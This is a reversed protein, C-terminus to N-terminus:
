VGSKRDGAVGHRIPDDVLQAPRRMLEKGQGEAPLELQVVRDRARVVAVMRGTALHQGVGIVRRGRGIQLLEEM